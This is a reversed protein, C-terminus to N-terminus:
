VHARGIEGVIVTISQAFALILAIYRTWQSLKARGAEGEDAWEKFQPIIDMKLLEIVISATIYPSIGLALISFQSLAGGTFIDLFGFINSSSNSQGLNKSDFIPVTIKTGFRWVLLAGMTFLIMLILKKNKSLWKAM